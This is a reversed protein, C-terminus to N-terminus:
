VRTKISFVSCYFKMNIFIIKMVGSSCSVWKPCLYWFNGCSPFVFRGSDCCSGRAELPAETIVKVHALNTKRHPPTLYKDLHPYVSPLLITQMRHPTVILSRRQRDLADMIHIQSRIYVLQDQESYYVYRFGDLRISNIEADLSFSLYSEYLFSNISSLYIFLM